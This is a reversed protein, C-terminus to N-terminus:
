IVCLLSSEKTFNCKKLTFKKISFCELFCRLSSVVEVTVNARYDEAGQLCFVDDDTDIQYLHCEFHIIYLNQRLFDVILVLEDVRMQRSTYCISGRSLDILHPSIDIISTLKNTSVLEFVTLLTKLGM